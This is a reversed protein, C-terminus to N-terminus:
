EECPSFTLHTLYPCTLLLDHILRGSSSISCSTKCSRCYLASLDSGLTARESLGQPLRPLQFIIERRARIGEAQISSFSHRTELTEHLVSHVSDEKSQPETPFCPVFYLLRVGLPSHLRLTLWKFCLLSWTNGQRTLLLGQPSHLPCATFLCSMHWQAAWHCTSEHPWILSFPSTWTLLM